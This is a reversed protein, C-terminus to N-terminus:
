LLAKKLESSSQGVIDMIKNVDIESLIKREISMLLLGELREQLMSSRLRTKVRKLTSFSREASCSTIPIAVAISYVRVLNPYADILMYSKNTLVSLCDIFSKFEGSPDEEDDIEVEDDSLCDIDSDLYITQSKNQILGLDFDEFVKAFSFLEAACRHVDIKYTDCFERVKDEVHNTTPYDTFFTPFARPSFISFAELVHKSESFRNDLGVTVYDLAVTFVDIWWKAEPDIPATSKNKDVDSEGAGAIRRSRVVRKQEWEAGEFNLDVADIIQQPNKRLRKHHYFM